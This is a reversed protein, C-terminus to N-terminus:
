WYEELRLSGNRRNEDVRRSNPVEDEGEGDGSCEELEEVDERGVRECVILTFWVDADPEM